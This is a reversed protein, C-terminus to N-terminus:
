WRPFPGYEARYVDGIDSDVFASIAKTDQSQGGFSEGMDWTGRGTGPSTTITNKGRRPRNVPTIMGHPHEDLDHTSGRHVLSIGALRSMEGELEREYGEEEEMEQTCRACEAPIETGYLFDTTAPSPADYKSRGKSTQSNRLRASARLTPTGNVPGNTHHQKPRSDNPSLPTIPARQKGAAVASQFPAPPISQVHQSLSRQSVLPVVSKRNSPVPSTPRRNAVFAHSRGSDPPSALQLPNDQAVMRSRKPTSQFCQELSDENWDVQNLDTFQRLQAM